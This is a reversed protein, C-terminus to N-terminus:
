VVNKYWFVKLGKEPYKEKFVQPASLSQQYRWNPAFEDVQRQLFTASLDPANLCLLIDADKALFETMRRIIKAYDREINVSGKQFAPPDCILMDYPAHKRVRGFSKFLDVAEYKVKTKDQKNLQHNTRGQALAAKSMDLNVVSEAGGAIAAVSFACTYAFLNLVRKGSAHQKVWDRGNKMDLFLGHNQKKGLTLQYQLGLETVVLENVMDGFLVECQGQDYSGSIAYRHQLILSQCEPLNTKVWSQIAEKLESDVPKYATVYVVPKLWDICVHELGAFCHGRGHFLRQCDDGTPLQINKILTNM